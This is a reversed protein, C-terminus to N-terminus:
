EFHVTGTVLYSNDLVAQNTNNALGAWGDTASENYYSMFCQDNNVEIRREAFGISSIGVGSNAIRIIGDETWQSAYGAYIGTSCAYQKDYPIYVGLTYGGLAKSQTEIYYKSIGNGTFNVNYYQVGQEPAKLAKVTAQNSPSWFEDGKYNATQLSRNAFNNIGFGSSAGDAKLNMYSEPTITNAPKSENIIRNYMSLSMLSINKIDTTAKISPNRQDVVQYTITALKKIDDIKYMDDSIDNTTGGDTFKLTQEYFEFNVTISNSDEVIGNDKPIIVFYDVIKEYKYTRTKEIDVKEQPQTTPDLIIKSLEGKMYSGYIGNAKGFNTPNTSTTDKNTKTTSFTSSTLANDFTSMGDIYIYELKTGDPKEIPKYSAGFSAGIFDGFTADTRGDSLGIQALGTNHSTADNYYTSGKNPAITTIKDEGDGLLFTGINIITGSSEPDFSSKEKFELATNNKNVAKGAYGGAYANAKLEGFHVVVKQNITTQDDATELKGFVAGVFKDGKIEGTTISFNPISRDNAKLKAYGAVGGVHSNAASITVDANNVIIYDSLTISVENGTTAGIIGGVYGGKECQVSATNVVNSIKVAQVVGVIGGVYSGFSSSIEGKNICNTLTATRHTTNGYLDTALNITSVIGGVNNGYAKIYGTNATLGVVTADGFTYEFKSHNDKDKPNTNTITCSSDMTACVGAIYDRGVINASNVCSYVKSSSTLRACIGAIYSLGENSADSRNSQKYKSGFYYKGSSECNSISSSESAIGVLLASYQNKFLLIYKNDMKINNVQASKTMNAVVGASASSGLLEVYSVENDSYKADTTEGVIAAYATGVLGGAYTGSIKMKMNVTEGDLQRQVRTFQASDDYVRNNTLSLKTYKAYGVLGGANGANIKSAYVNCNTIATVYYNDTNSAESVCVISGVIGGASGSASISQCDGVYCDSIIFSGYTTAGVIGGSVKASQLTINNVSINKAMLFDSTNTVAIGIGIAGGVTGSSSASITANTINILGAEKSVALGVGVAGGAYTTDSSLTSTVKGGYVNVAKTASITGVGVIGGVFNKGSVNTDLVGGTTGKVGNINYIADVEGQYSFNDPVSYDTTAINDVITTKKEILEYKDNDSIRVRGAVGGVFYRGLITSEQIQYAIVSKTSLGVVGGVNDVSSASITLNKITIYQGIGTSGGKSLEAENYGVVGGVAQNQDLKETVNVSIRSDQIAMLIDDGSKYGGIFGSGTNQGAILGVYGFQSTSISCDNVQCKAINGTNKSAILGISESSNGQYNVSCKTMNAGRITGTNTATIIAVSTSSCNDFQVDIMRGSFTGFLPANLSLGSIKIPSTTGDKNLKKQGLIQGSFNEIQYDFSKTITIDETILVKGTGTGGGGEFFKIFQAENSIVVDEGNGEQSFAVDYKGDADGYYKDYDGATGSYVDDYATGSVDKIIGSNKLATIYPYGFNKLLDKNEQWVNLRKSMFTYEMNRLRDQNDTNKVADIVNSTSSSLFSNPTVNEVRNTAGILTYIYRNQEDDTRSTIFRAEDTTAHYSNYVYGNNHAVLGTGAYPLYYTFSLTFDDYMAGNNTGVFFSSEQSGLETATADKATDLYPNIYSYAVMSGSRVILGNNTNAVPASINASNIVATYFVDALLGNNKNIFTSANVTTNGAGNADAGAGGDAPETESKTTVFDVNVGCIAGNVGINISTGTKGDATLVRFTNYGNDTAFGSIIGEVSTAADVGKLDLASKLVIYGNLDVSGNDGEIIRPSFKYEIASIDEGGAGSVNKYDIVNKDATQNKENAPIDGFLNQLKKPYVNYYYAESNGTDNRKLLIKTSGFIDTDVTPELLLNAYNQITIIPRNGGYRLAERNTLLAYDKDTTIFERVTYNGESSENISSAFSYANQNTLRTVKDGYVKIRAYNYGYQAIVDNGGGLVGGIKITASTSYDYLIDANSVYNIITCSGAGVLGGINQNVVNTCEDYVNVKKNADANTLTITNSNHYSGNAVINGYYYVDKIIINTTSGVLGGAFITTTIKDTNNIKETEAKSNNKYIVTEAGFMIDGIAYSSSIITTNSTNAIMGVLGGAYAKQGNVSGTAVFIRSNNNSSSINAGNTAYGILGGAYMTDADGRVYIGYQKHTSKIAKNVADGEASGSFIPASASATASVKQISTSTAYGIVGGISAVNKEAVITNISYSTTSNRVISSTESYGAVAGINIKGFPNTISMASRVNKIKDLKSKKAEEDDNVEDIILDDLNTIGLATLNAYSTLFTSQSNNINTASIKGAIGGINQPVVGGLLMTEGSVTVGTLTGNNIDGALLGFSTLYNNDITEGGFLANGINTVNVTVANLTSNTIQGFAFGFNTNASGFQIISGNHMIAFKVESMTTDRMSHAFLGVNQIESNTYSLNGGVSIEFNLKSITAGLIENLLSSGTYVNINITPYKVETESGINQGILVGRFTTSFQSINGYNCDITYEDNSGEDDNKCIIYTINDSPNSFANILDANNRIYKVNSFGDLNKSPLYEGSRVAWIKNTANDANTANLKDYFMGNYGNTYKGSADKDPYSSTRNNNNYYNIFVNKYSAQTTQDQYKGILQAVTEQYGLVRDFRVQGLVDAINNSVTNQEKNSANIIADNSIETGDNWLVYKYDFDSYAPTCSSHTTSYVGHATKNYYETAKGNEGNLTAFDSDLATGDYMTYNDGDNTATVKGVVSGVFYFTTNSSPNYLAESPYSVIKPEGNADYEINGHADKKYEVEVQQLWYTLNDPSNPDLARSNLDFAQFYYTKEVGGDTVTVKNVALKQNGIEPMRVAINEAGPYLNMQNAKLKNVADLSWTNLATVSRLYLEYNGEYTYFGVAGGTVHKGLVDGTTYVYAMYNYNKAYGVIGGAIQSYNNKVNVLSYSDVIAGSSYGAIGGIAVNVQDEANRFLPSGGFLTSASVVYDDTINLNIEKQKAEAHEVYVQEIIGHNEGVIGGTYHKGYLTQTGEDGLIFSAQKLRADSGLYGTVGGVHEGIIALNNYVTLGYYDTKDTNTRYQTYAFLLKRSRETTGDFEDKESGTAKNSPATKDNGLMIGAIGGAYSVDTDSISAFQKFLKENFKIFKGSEDYSSNTFGEISSYSSVIAIDHVRIDFLTSNQVIGAVGGVFNKGTIYVSSSNDTDLIDTGIKDVSLDSTIEINVLSSKNSITGALVGVNNSNKASFNAVHMSIDKIKGGNIESFLGFNTKAENTNWKLNTLIMGNGYISGTFTIEYLRERDAIDSDLKSFDVDAFDLDNILRYNWAGLKQMDLIYTVFHSGSDILIPNNQDGLQKGIFTYQYVTPVEGDANKKNEDHTIRTLQRFSTAIINADVLKPLSGKEARWISGSGPTSGFNFGVYSTDLGALCGYTGNSDKETDIEISKAEQLPALTEQNNVDILYFCNTITGTNLSSTNKEGVFMGFATTGGSLNGGAIMKRHISASYSTEITGSNTYVFGASNTANNNVIMATYSNKISGANEYAFVGVYGVSTILDMDSVTFKKNKFEPRYNLISRNQVFSSLIRGTKSNEVTIGGTKNVVNNGDSAFTMTNILSLGRVSSASIVGSNSGAIGALMRGGALAFPHISTDSLERGTDIGLTKDELKITTEFKSDILSITEGVKADVVADGAFGIFSNTIAGGSANEGVLGAVTTSYLTSGNYGLYSLVHFINKNEDYVRNVVKSNTISGQNQGAIVGFTANDIFSIDAKSLSTYADKDYNLGATNVSAIQENMEKENILMPSIDFTLNKLVTNQSVTSFFGLYQSTNNQRYEDFNFSNIKITYGNGDLSDINAETPTWDSVELNNLLIYHGSTQESLAKLDDVDYIPMPNDYTSNETVNVICQAFMRYVRSYKPEDENVLIPNGDKDFTYKVEIGIVANSGIRKGSIYYHKDGVGTSQRFDFDAYTGNTGLEEWEYEGNDNTIQRTWLNVGAGVGFRNSLIETTDNGDKDKLGVSTYGSWAHAIIDSMYVLNGNADYMDLDNVKLVEDNKMADRLAVLLEQTVGMPLNMVGNETHEIGMKDDDFMYNTIKVKITSETKESIGNINRSATVTILLSYPNDGDNINANTLATKDIILYYKKNASLDFTDSVYTGNEDVISYMSSTLDDASEPRFTITEFNDASISIANSSGNMVHVYDSMGNIAINVSPLNQVLLPHKHPTTLVEVDGSSTTQYAVVEIPISQGQPASQSVSIYAYLTNDYISYLYNDSNKSDGDYIISSQKSLVVGYYTGDAIINRYSQEQYGTTLGSQNKTAVKQAFSIYPRYNSPVRVVVYDTNSFEPDVFIKMLGSRGPAIYDSEVEAPNYVNNENEASPYFKSGISTTESPNITINFKANVSSESGSVFYLTYNENNLSYKEANKRYEDVNFTFTVSYNIVYFGQPNKVYEKVENGDSDKVVNGDKDLKTVKQPLEVEDVYAKLLSNILECGQTLSTDNLSNNAVNNVFGKFMDLKLTDGIDGTVVEINLTIEGSPSFSAQESANTITVSQAKNKVFLTYNHSLADILICNDPLKNTTDLYFVDNGVVSSLNIFPTVRVAMKNDFGGSSKGSITFKGDSGIIISKNSKDAGYEEGNFMISANLKRNAPETNPENCDEFQILYGINSNTIYDGNTANFYYTKDQNIYVTDAKNDADAVDGLKVKDYNMNFDSIGPVIVIEVETFVNHNLDSRITIKVRGTNKVKLYYAYVDIISADSTEDDNVLITLNNNMYLNVWDVSKTKGQLTINIINHNYGNTTGIDATNGDFQLLYVNDATTGQSTANYMLVVKSIEGGNTADIHGSNVWQKTEKGKQYEIIEAKVQDPLVDYLVAYSQGVGEQVIIVPYKDNLDAYEANAFWDKGEPFTEIGGNTADKTGNIIAFNYYEFLGNITKNITKDQSTAYDAIKFKERNGSAIKIISDYGGDKNVITLMEDDIAGYYKSVNTANGSATQYGDESGYPVVSDVINGVPLLLNIPKTTKVKGHSYSNEIKIDSASYAIFPNVVINESTTSNTNDSIDGSHYTKKIDITASSGVYAFIGGIYTNTDGNENEGSVLAYLNGYYLKNDIDRATFSRTYTNEVNLLANNNIKAVLGAIYKTGIISTADLATVQENAFYVIANEITSTTGSIGTMEGFLGGVTHASRIKPSITVNSLSVGTISGAFGGAILHKIGKQSADTDIINNTINVLVYIDEVDYEGGTSVSNLAIQGFAGGVYVNYKDTGSTNYITINARVNYRSDLFGDITSVPAGKVKATREVKGIKTSIMKGAIAGVNAKNGCTDLVIDAEISSNIFEGAFTGALVGINTDASNVQANIIANKFSMNEFRANYPISQFLGVNGSVEGMIQVGYVAAYTTYLVNNKYYTHKGNLEFQGTYNFPKNYPRDYLNIDRTLVYYLDSSGEKGVRDLMASFQSSTRIQYPYLASGNAVNVEYEIQTANEKGFSDDSVMVISTTVPTSQAKIYFVGTNNSGPDLVGNTSITCDKDLYTAYYLNAYNPIRLKKNLANAPSVTYTVKRVNNSGAEFYLGEDDIDVSIQNVKQAYDLKVTMTDFAELKGFQTVKITINFVLKDGVSTYLNHLDVSSLNSGSAPNWQTRIVKGNVSFLDEIHIAVPNDQGFVRVQALVTNADYVVSVEVNDSGGLAQLSPNLDYKIEHSALKKADESTGLSQEQYLTVNKGNNIRINRLSDYIYIKIKVTLNERYFYYEYNEGEQHCYQVYDSYTIELEFPTNNNTTLLNGITLVGNTWSFANSVKVSCRDNINIKRVDVICVDGDTTQGLIPMFNYFNLPIQSNSAVYLSYITGYTYGIDQSDILSGDQQKTYYKIYYKGDADSNGDADLVSLKDEIKFIATNKKNTEIAFPAYNEYKGEGNLKSPDTFRVDDKPVISDTRTLGTTYYMPAYVSVNITTTVGNYAKLVLKTSGTKYDSNIHLFVKHRNDVDNGDEDVGLTGFYTTVISEDMSVVKILDSAINNEDFEYLVGSCGNDYIANYERDRVQTRDFSNIGLLNKATIKSQIPYTKFDDSNGVHSTKVDYNFIFVICYEDKPINNNPFKHKIYVSTVGDINMNIANADDYTWTGTAMDYKAMNWQEGYRNTLVIDNNVADLLATNATEHETDIVKPMIGVYFKLGVYKELSDVTICTGDASSGDYANFVRVMDRNAEVSEGNILINNPVPRIVFKVDVFQDFGSYNKHSIKFRKIIYNTDSSTNASVTFADFSKTESKGPEESKLTIQLGFRKVSVIGRGDDYGVSELVENEGEATSYITSYVSYNYNENNAYTNSNGMNFFFRRQILYNNTIEQPTGFGPDALDIEYFNKSVAQVNFWNSGDNEDLSDSNMQLGINREIKVVPFVCSAQMVSGGVMYYETASKRVKATVKIYNYDDTGVSQNGLHLKGNSDFYVNSTITSFNGDSRTDTNVLYEIDYIDPNGSVATDFRLYQSYKGGFDVVTGKEFAIQGNTNDIFSLKTLTNLVKVSFTKSFGGELTSVKITANGPNLAKLKIESKGDRNEITCSVKDDVGSVRVDKSVDKGASVSAYVTCEDYVLENSANRSISLEVSEVAQGDKDTVSLSMDKYKDKTCGFVALVSALLVFCWVGIKKIMLGGFKM